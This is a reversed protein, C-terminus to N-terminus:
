LNCSDSILQKLGHMTCFQHYIPSLDDHYLFKSSITDDDRVIYRNNHYMNVNLDGLIHIEKKDIDVKEFTMNLIELFNTQSPPRYMIGVTVPTTKPLLIEFFINEIVNLFFTKQVYSIDSRIYCAVGGGSRNRDCRPLDYNDIEIESQFISENLKSETIGIVAAKTHEAIYCIEDINPLLSNVNLHILHIGKSRFVNWENTPKPMHPTRDCACAELCALFM